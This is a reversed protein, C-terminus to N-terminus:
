KALYDRWVLMSERPAGVEDFLGSDRWYLNVQGTGTCLGAVSTCMADYDRPVFNVVFKFSHKLANLLMDEIFRKQMQESGLHPYTHGGWEIDFNNAPFGSESIAVPKNSTNLALLDDFMTAPYGTPSDSYESKHPYLSIAFYDSFNMVQNLGTLHAAFHESTHEEYDLILTAEVSSFIPLNPYIKKLETYTFEQLSMYKNWEIMAKSVDNGHAKYMQKIFTTVEVGIGFYDPEFYEILRICYKLYATKVDQHDFANTSEHAAFRSSLAMNKREGYQLALGDRTGKMPTVIMYVKHSEKHSAPIMAKKEAWDDLVNQDYPPIASSFDDNLAEDWPVGTNEQHSILDAENLITENTFDLAEQTIDFPFPNFGMHFNRAVEPAPSGGTNGDDEKTTQQNCSMGILLIAM